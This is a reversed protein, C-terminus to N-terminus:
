LRLDIFPDIDSSCLSLTLILKLHNEQTDRTHKKHTEQTDRTHRKHTEQTDRPLREATERERRKSVALENVENYVFCVEDFWLTM